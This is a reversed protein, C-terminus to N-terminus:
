LSNSTSSFNADMPNTIKLPSKGICGSVSVNLLLFGWALIIKLPFSGEIILIFFGKETRKLFGQGLIMFKLAGRPLFFPLIVRDLM